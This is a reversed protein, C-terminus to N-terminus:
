ESPQLNLCWLHRAWWRVHAHRGDMHQLLTCLLPPPPLFQLFAQTYIPTEVLIVNRAARCCYYYYISTKTCPLAHIASFWPHCQRSIITIITGATTKRPSHASSNGIRRKQQVVHSSHSLVHNMEAALEQKQTKTQKVPRRCPRTIKGDHQVRPVRVCQKSSNNKVSMHMYTRRGFPGINLVSTQKAKRTKISTVYTRTTRRAKDLALGRAGRNRRQRCVAIFAYCQADKQRRAFGMRRPVERCRRVSM